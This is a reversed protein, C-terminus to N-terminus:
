IVKNPILGFYELEFNEIEIFNKKIIFKLNVWYFNRTVIFYIDFPVTDSEKTKFYGKIIKQVELIIEIDHFNTANTSKWIANRSAEPNWLEHDIM